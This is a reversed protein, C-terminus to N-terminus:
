FWVRVGILPGELDVWDKGSGITLYDYGGFIEFRRYIYGVTFRGRFVGAEGLNGGEIKGSFIWGQAPFVDVGFLVNVGGDTCYRDTLVRGGIGARVLWYQTPIQLYLNATGMVLDDSQDEVLHEHFHNWSTNVGLYRNDFYLEGNARNLGSFDNGNEVSLRLSWDKTDLTDEEIGTVWSIDTETERLYGAFGYPYPYMPYRPVLELTEIEAGDVEQVFQIDADCDRSHDRPLTGFLLGGLLQGLFSPEASENCYATPQSQRKPPEKREDRAVDRVRSLRGQGLCVVPMSVMLMVFSLFYASVRM